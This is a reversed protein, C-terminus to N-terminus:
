QLVLLHISLHVTTAESNQCNHIFNSYVDVYLNRRLCLKEVQSSLYWAARNSPQTTLTHSMKSSVAWSDELTAAGNRMGVPLLPSNRNSRMRGLMQPHSHEPNQGNLHTHLPIEHNTLNANGYHCM